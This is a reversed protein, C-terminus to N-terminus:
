REPYKDQDRPGRARAARPEKCVLAIRLARETPPSEPEKGVSPRAWAGVAPHSKM